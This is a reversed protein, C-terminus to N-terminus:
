QVKQYKLDARGTLCDIHVLNFASVSNGPPTESVSPSNLQFAKTSPDIAPLVSGHALPIYEDQGSTLQGLYNFAIYPFPPLYPLTLQKPFDETPFPIQTTAFGQIPYSAGTAPDVVPPIPSNRPGFKWQAIFSGEPLGQWRDLYHWIHRGPQDGAAGYAVFTYGSLQKDCLNTAVAQQVPSLQSWWNNPFQGGVVWFNTPVFIMYVTTHNAIALQRARGVGDLMQRSASISANSKGLNKIAPVTLAALLGLISIVVLMEVLTFANVIKSKRNVIAFAPREPRKLEAPLRCDAIPLRCNKM